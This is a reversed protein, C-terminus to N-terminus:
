INEMYAVIINQELKMRLFATQAKIHQIDFHWDDGPQLRKGMTQDTTNGNPLAYVILITETNKKLEVPMDITIKVDGYMKFSDILSQAKASALSFNLLMLCSIQYM